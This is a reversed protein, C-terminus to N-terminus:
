DRKELQIMGIPYNTAYAKVKETPVPTPKPKPAIALGDINPRSYAAGRNQVLGAITGIQPLGAKTVTPKPLNHGFMAHHPIRQVDM